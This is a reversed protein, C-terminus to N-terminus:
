FCFACFIVHRPCRWHRGGQCIDTVNLKRCSEMQALLEMSGSPRTHPARGPRGCTPSASCRESLDRPASLQWIWVICGLSGGQWRHLCCFSVHQGASPATLYLEHLGSMRATIGAWPSAPQAEPSAVWLDAQTAPWTQNGYKWTRSPQDYAVILLKFWDRTAVKDNWISFYIFLM